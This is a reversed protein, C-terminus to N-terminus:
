SSIISVINKLILGEFSVVFYLIWWFNIFFYCIQLSQIQLIQEITSIDVITQLSQIQLIKPKILKRLNKYYNFIKNTGFTFIIYKTIELFYHHRSTKFYVIFLFFL